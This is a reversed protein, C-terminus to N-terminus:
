TSVQSCKAKRSPSVNLRNRDGDENRARRSELLPRVRAEEEIESASGRRASIDAVAEGVAASLHQGSPRLAHASQRDFAPSEPGVLCREILLRTDSPGQGVAALLFLGHEAPAHSRMQHDLDEWVDRPFVIRVSNM